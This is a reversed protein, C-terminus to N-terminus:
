KTSLVRRSFRICINNLDLSSSYNVEDAKAFVIRLGINSAPEEPDILKYREILDFRRCDDRLRLILSEPSIVLRLESFKM